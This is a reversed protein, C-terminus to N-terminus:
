RRLATHSPIVTKQMIARGRSVSPIVALSSLGFSDTAAAADTLSLNSSQVNSTTHTHTHTDLRENLCVWCELLHGTRHRLVHRHHRLQRAEDASVTQHVHGLALLFEGALVVMRLGQQYDTLRDSIKVTTWTIDTGEPDM